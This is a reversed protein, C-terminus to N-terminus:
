AVAYSRASGGIGKYVTAESYCNGGANLPGMGLKNHTVNSKAFANQVGARILWPTDPGDVAAKLRRRFEDRAFKDGGITGGLVMMSLLRACALSTSAVSSTGDNDTAIRLPKWEKGNMFDGGVWFGESGKKSDDFFGGGALAGNVYSWGLAHVCDRTGENSSQIIMSDLSRAFPISFRIDLGNGAKKVALVSEYTPRRREVRSEGDLVRKVSDEIPKSMTSRLQSFLDAQAQADNKATPPNVLAFRKVMDLFAHAAYMVGIKGVSANYDEKDDRFGGFPLSSPASTDGNLDVAGLDVITIAIAFPEAAVVRKNIAAKLASELKNSKAFTTAPAAAFPTVPTAM